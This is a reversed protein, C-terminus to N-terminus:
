LVLVAGNALARAVKNAAKSTRYAQFEGVTDIQGDPLAQRVTYLRKHDMDMRESTVFYEGGVGRYAIDPWRSNFFRKASQSFWHFGHRENRRIIEDMAFTDLSM